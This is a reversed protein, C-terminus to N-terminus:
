SMTGPGAGSLAGGGTAFPGLWRGRAVRGRNGFVRELAARGGGREDLLNQTGALRQIIAEGAHDRSQVLAVHPQHPGDRQHRKAAEARDAVRKLRAHRLASGGAPPAHLRQQGGGCCLDQEHFHRIM